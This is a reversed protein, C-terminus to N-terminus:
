TSVVQADLSAILEAATPVVEGFKEDIVALSAAHAAEDYEACADAVVIPAYGRDSAERATTEVCCNTTVGCLVLATVGLDRLQRDLDSAAFGGFTTKELVPEGTRPTAEARIRHDPSELWFLDPVGSERELARVAERRASPLDALDRQRSGLTLYVVPLGRDRFAALLAVVAPVVHAEVRANYYACSGPSVRELARGYGRNASTYADQLDVVVLATREHVPAIATAFRRREGSM